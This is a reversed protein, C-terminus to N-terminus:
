LSSLSRVVLDLTQKPVPNYNLAVVKGKPDRVEVLKQIDTVVFLFNRSALNYVKSCSALRANEPARCKLRSSKEILSNQAEAAARALYPVRFKTIEVTVGNVEVMLGASLKGVSALTRKYVQSELEPSAITKFISLLLGSGHTSLFRKREEAEGDQLIRIALGQDSIKQLLKKMSPTFLYYTGYGLVAIVIFFAIARVKM